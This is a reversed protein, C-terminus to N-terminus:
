LRVVIGAVDLIHEYLVLDSLALLHNQIGRLNELSPEDFVTSISCLVACASLM